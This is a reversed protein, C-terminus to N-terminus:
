PCHRWEIARRALSRRCGREDGRAVAALFQDVTGRVAHEQAGGPGDKGRLILIAAV